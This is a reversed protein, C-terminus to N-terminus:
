IQCSVRQQSRYKSSDWEHLILINSFYVFEYMSFQIYLLWLRRNVANSSHNNYVLNSLLLMSGHWHIVIEYFSIMNVCEILESVTSTSSGCNFNACSQRVSFEGRVSFSGDCPTNCPSVRTTDSNWGCFRSSICPLLMLHIIFLRFSSRYIDTADYSLLQRISIVSVHKWLMTDLCAHVPLWWFIIKHRPLNSSNGTARVRDIFIFVWCCFSFICSFILFRTMQEGWFLLWSWVWLWLWLLVLLFSLYGLATAGDVTDAIYNLTGGGMLMQNDSVFALSNWYNNTLANLQAYSRGYNYRIKYVAAAQTKTSFHLILAVVLLFSVILTKHNSNSKFNSWNKTLKVNSRQYQRQLMPQPQILKCTGLKLQMGGGQAM